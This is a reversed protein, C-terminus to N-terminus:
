AVRAPLRAQSGYCRDKATPRFVSELNVVNMLSRGIRDSM